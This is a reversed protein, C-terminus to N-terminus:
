KGNISRSGPCFGQGTNYKLIENKIQTLRSSVVDTTLNVLKILDVGGAKRQLICPKLIMNVDLGYIYQAAKCLKMSSEKILEKTNIAVSKYKGRLLKLKRKLIMQCEESLLDNVGTGIPIYGIFAMSQIGLEYLYKVTDEIDIMNSSNVLSISHVKLGYEQLIRIGSVTKHWAGSKRRLLDHKSPINSDISVSIEPLLQSLKFAIKSTIMTGNTCMDVEFGEEKLTQIIMFIDGRLLPEGGSIIIEKIGIQKLFPLINKIHNFDTDYSSKDTRHCFGCFLNCKTTIEWLLRKNVSNNSRFCCISDYSQKM